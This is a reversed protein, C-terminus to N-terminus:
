PHPSAAIALPISWGLGGARIPWHVECPRVPNRLHPGLTGTSPLMSPSGHRTGGHHTVLHGPTPLATPRWRASGPPRGCGPAPISLRPVPLAPVEGSAGAIAPVRPHRAPGLRGCRFWGLDLHLKTNWTSCREALPATLGGLEHAAHRQAASCRPESLCSPGRPATPRGHSGGRESRPQSRAGWSAGTAPNGSGSCRPRAAPLSASTRQRCVVLSRSWDPRATPRASPVLWLRPVPRCVPGLWGCVLGPPSVGAWGLWVRSGSAVCRGLGAVCSVRAFRSTNRTMAEVRRRTGQPQPLARVAVPPQGPHGGAGLPSSVIHDAV